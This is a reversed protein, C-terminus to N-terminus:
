FKPLCFCRNRFHWLKWKHTSGTKGRLSNVLCSVPLLAQKQCFPLHLRLGSDSAKQRPAFSSWWGRKKGSTKCFGTSTLQPLFKELEQDQHEPGKLGYSFKSTPGKGKKRFVKKEWSTWWRHLNDHKALCKGETHAKQRYILTKVWFKPIKTFKSLIHRNKM